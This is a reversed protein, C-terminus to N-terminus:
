GRSYPLFYRGASSGGSVDLVSGTIYEAQPSSLFLVAEAIEAPQGMRGWPINTILTERYAPNVDGRRGVDILGPSVVNVHIRHEALEQALVKSFMVIAAKSACYHSAGRRASRYAGSALNVIHGAVHEAVMRRAVGRSMLFTGKLNTEIVADWQEEPMEIVPCNPYVAANNVLVEIRGLQGVAAQVIQDVAPATRVDGVIGFARGPGGGLEAVVSKVRDAIADVVAVWAGERVFAAAIARGIGAGAGSIVVRRGSFAGESM